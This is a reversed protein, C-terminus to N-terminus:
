TQEGRTFTTGDDAITSTAISTGADNFITHTTATVTEKNRLNQYIWQIMTHIGPNATPVSSLETITDTRLVDVVQTNVDATTVLAAPITTGTDVLIAAVNTNITAIDAGNFPTSDSLIADRITNAATPGIDGMTRNEIGFTAIPFGTCDFAGLYGNDLTITYDAGTEWFAHDNLNLVIRHIGTAPTDSDFVGSAAAETYQRSVASDPSPPDAPTATKQKYITIGDPDTDFAVLGVSASTSFFVAIETDDEVFDGLYGAPNIPM